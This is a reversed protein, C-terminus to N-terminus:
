HRPFKAYRAFSSQVKVHFLSPSHDHHSEVFKWEIEKWCSVIYYRGVYLYFRLLMNKSGYVAWREFIMKIPTQSANSSGTPHSFYFFFCCSSFYFNNYLYYYHFLINRIGFFSLKDNTVNLFKYSFYKLKHTKKKCFLDM